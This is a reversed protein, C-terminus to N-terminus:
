RPIRRAMTAVYWGAGAALAWLGGVDPRGAALWPQACAICAWMAAEARLELNM